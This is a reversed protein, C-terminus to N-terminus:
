STASPRGDDNSEKDDNNDGDNNDDNDNADKDGETEGTIITGKKDDNREKGGNQRGQQQQEEEEESPTYEVDYQFQEDSSGYPVDFNHIVILSYTGDSVLRHNDFQVSSIRNSRGKLEFWVLAQDRDWVTITGIYMCIRICFVYM